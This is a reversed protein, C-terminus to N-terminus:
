RHIPQYASALAQTTMRKSITSKKFTTTPVSPLHAKVAGQAQKVLAIRDALFLVNKVLNARMLQDILAIVTRTKGSGTAM